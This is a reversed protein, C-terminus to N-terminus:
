EAGSDNGSAIIGCIRCRLRSWTLVRSRKPPLVVIPACISEVIACSCREPQTSFATTQETDSVSCIPKKAVCVGPDNRVLGAGNYNTMVSTSTIDTSTLTVGVFTGNRAAMDSTISSRDESYTDRLTAELQRRFIWDVVGRISRHVCHM